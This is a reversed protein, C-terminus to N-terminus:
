TVLYPVRLRNLDIVVTSYELPENSSCYQVSYLIYIYVTFSDYQLPEYTPFHYKLEYEYM